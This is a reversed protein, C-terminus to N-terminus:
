GPVPEEGDLVHKSPSTLGAPALPWVAKTDGHCICLEVQWSWLLIGENGSYMSYIQGRHMGVLSTHQLATTPYM